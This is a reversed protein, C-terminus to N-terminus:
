RRRRARRGLVAVSGFVLALGVAIVALMRPMLELPEDASADSPGFIGPVNEADALKVDKYFKRTRNCYNTELAGDNQSSAFVLYRQGVNFNVGCATGQSHSLVEIPGADLGKILTDPLFTWRIKGLTDDVNHVEKPYEAAIVYGAFVVDHEEASAADPLPSACSCAVASRDGLPVIALSLIMVLVIRSATRKM